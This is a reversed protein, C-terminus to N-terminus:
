AATGCPWPSMGHSPPEMQAAISYSRRVPKGDGPVTVTLFQGPLYGFPLVGGLANHLRFTKVHPTEQFIRGVRLNGSWKKVPPRAADAAPVGVPTMPSPPQSVPAGPLRGQTPAGTLNRLLVAARRMKFFYMWIIVAAFAILVSMVAAHFWSGGAPKPGTPASLNMERRFWQLAVDRPAKGEHVARKAAIASEVRGLGERMRATAEQMAVADGASAAAALRDVGETLMATGARMREQAQDLVERRKEPTLEPISMLSPYLERGPPAGHMGDMGGMGGMPGGQQPMTTPGSGQAPHHSAHEEPTIACAKGPLLTAVLAVLIALVVVVRRLCLRTAIM